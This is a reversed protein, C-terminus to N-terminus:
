ADRPAQPSGALTRAGYPTRYRREGSAGVGAVGSVLGGILPHGLALAAAGGAMSGKAAEELYKLPNFDGVASQKIFKDHLLQSEKKLGNKDCIDILINFSKLTM